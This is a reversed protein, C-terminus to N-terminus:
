CMRWAMNHPNLWGSLKRNREGTREKAGKGKLADLSPIMRTMLTLIEAPDGVLLLLATWSYWFASSADPCQSVAAFQPLPVHVTQIQPPEEWATCKPSEKTLATRAALLCVRQLSLFLPLSLTLSRSLSHKPTFCARAYLCLCKWLCINNM